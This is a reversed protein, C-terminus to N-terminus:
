PVPYPSLIPPENIEMPAPYPSPVIVDSSELPDPYPDILPSQIQSDMGYTDNMV